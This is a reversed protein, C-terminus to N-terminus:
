GDIIPDYRGGTNFISDIEARGGWVIMESGSWIATHDTRATPANTISTATWSDANPNYRGGTNLYSSCCGVGGWVIMENSTTWVATHWYRPTPANATSTTTWSDTNPNYRGGTNWNVQIGTGGWVIKSSGRSIAHQRGKASSP